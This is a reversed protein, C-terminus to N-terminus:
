KRMGYVGVLGTIDGAPAILTLGDYSVSQNHTSARDQIRGGSQDIATLSRSATPQALNPGYLYLICGSRSTAATHFDSQTDSYRNASVITGSATISQMTYASATANDISGSRLRYTVSLTGSATARIVLIYNDYESSFVSNLSLTACQTFTVSGNTSISSSNGLGTSAISAPKILELGNKRSM